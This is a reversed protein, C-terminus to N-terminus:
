HLGGERLRAVGEVVNWQHKYPAVNSVYLIRIQRQKNPFPRLRVKKFEDRVGHPIYAVNPLPGCSEQIVKGAYKTLFIVGDANQLARNQVYKLILLRIRQSSFGFRSMEGPEYSLMDRSATVAPKFPCLSGADVNFLLSVRLATLIRPLKIKEWALQRLISGQSCDPCHRHVWSLRPIKALLDSNGWVHVEDIGFKTPNVAQLLGVIHAHAGGSRARVANIGIVKEM